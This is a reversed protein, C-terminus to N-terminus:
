LLIMADAAIEDLEAQLQLSEMFIEDEIDELEAQFQLSEMFMEDELNAVQFKIGNEQSNQNKM